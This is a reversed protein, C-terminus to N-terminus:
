SRPNAGFKSRIKGFKKVIKRARNGSLRLGGFHDGGNQLALDGPLKSSLIWLFKRSLLCLLTKSQNEELQKKCTNNELFEKSKKQANKSEKGPLRPKAPLFLGQRKPPNEKSVMCRSIMVDMCTMRFCKIEHLWNCHMLYICNASNFEHLINRTGNRCDYHGKCHTKRDMKATQLSFGDCLIAPACWM